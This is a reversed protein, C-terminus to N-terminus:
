EGFYLTLGICTGTSLTNEVYNLDLEVNVSISPTFYYEGGYGVGYMSFYTNSYGYKIIGYPVLRKSGMSIQLAVGYFENYVKTNFNYDMGIVPVISLVSNIPISIGITADNSQLTTTLGYNLKEQASSIIFMSM